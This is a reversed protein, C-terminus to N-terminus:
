VRRGGRELNKELDEDYRDQSQLYRLLTGLANDVAAQKNRPRDGGANFAFTMGNGNHALGIIITGVPKGDSGGGPGAISTESLGITTGDREAVVLALHKAAAHSVSGHEIFVQKDCGLRDKSAHSYVVHGEEFWRGAGPLGVCESAIAGGATTEAISLTWGRRRMITAIELIM